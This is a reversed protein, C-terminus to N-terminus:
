TSGNAKGGKVYPHPLAVGTKDAIAQQNEQLDNLRSLVGGWRQGLNFLGGAGALAVASIAGWIQTHTDAAIM